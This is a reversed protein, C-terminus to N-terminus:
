KSPVHAPQLPLDVTLFVGDGKIRNKVDFEHYWRLHTTLARDGVPITLGMSPGLAAVRGKFSGLVADKGTDGTVQQYYYGVLGLTAGGPLIKSASWEVHLEDGSDYDLDLNKGNVTYGLSASAQWGRELDLWTLAGTVDFAWRNFGANVFRGDEWSGVPINLLTGINWHWNGSQWGILATLLPDGLQFDRETTKASLPPLPPRDLTAVASIQQWGFPLGAGVAVSGGLVKQPFVYTALLAELAADADVGVAFEGGGVPLPIAGNTSGTYLYTFSDLYGGPPPMVGAFESRFGLLYVNKASDMAGVGGTQALLGLAALASGVISRHM